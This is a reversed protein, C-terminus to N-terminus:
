PLYSHIPCRNAGGNHLTIKRSYFNIVGYNTFLLGAAKGQTTNATLEHKGGYIFIDEVVMCFFM